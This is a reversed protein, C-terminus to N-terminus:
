EIELGGDAGDEPWELEFEVSLEAQGSTPTEREAKVEFTLEPPVELTVSEEGSRLTVPDGADLRDVVTRLASAVDGRSQRQESEFIVEEPM